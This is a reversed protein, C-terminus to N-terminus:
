TSRRGGVARGLDDARRPEGHVRAGRHDEREAAEAARTTTVSVSASGARM